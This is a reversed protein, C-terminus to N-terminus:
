PHASLISDCGISIMLHALPFLTGSDNSKEGFTQKYSNSCKSSVSYAVGSRCGVTKNNRVQIYQLKVRCTIVLLSFNGTPLTYVLSDTRNSEYTQVFLNFIKVFRCRTCWFCAAAIYGQHLKTSRSWLEEWM